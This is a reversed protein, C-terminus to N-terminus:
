LQEKKETFNNKIYLKAKDICAQYHDDVVRVRVFDILACTVFVIIVTLIILITYEVGGLQLFQDQFNITLNWIIYRGLHSDHLLYVAFTRSAFRNITKSKITMSEVLLFLSTSVVPIIIGIRILDVIYSIGETSGVNGILSNIYKITLASYLLWGTFFSAITISISIISKLQIGKKKIFAGILYYLPARILDYYPTGIGVIGLAIGFYLFLFFYGRKNASIIINNLTHSVLMLVIYTTVFWWSNSSVPLIM